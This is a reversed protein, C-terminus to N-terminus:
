TNRPNTKKCFAQTQEKDFHAKGDAKVVYVESNVVRAAGVSLASSPGETFTGDLSGGVLEIMQGSDEINKKKAAEIMQRHFAAEDQEPVVKALPSTLSSLKVIMELQRRWSVAFGYLMLLAVEKSDAIEEERVSKVDADINEIVARVGTIIDM